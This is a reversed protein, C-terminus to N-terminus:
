PISAAASWGTPRCSGTQLMPVYVEDHVPERLQQRTDAVIGVITSWTRGDDGSIQQGIPDANGWYRRAMSRNIIVVPASQRTTWNDSMRFNRGAILPQGITAFYEPTAFLFDVQAGGVAPPLERGKIQINGSASAM